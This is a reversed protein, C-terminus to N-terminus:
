AVQRAILGVLRRIENDDRAPFKGRKALIRQMAQLALEPPLEKGIYVCRQRGDAQQWKAYWYPGHAQKKGECVTCGPNTCCTAIRQIAANPPIVPLPKRVRPM